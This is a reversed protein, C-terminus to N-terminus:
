SRRRHSSSAPDKRHGPTRHSPHRQAAERRASYVAQQRTSVHRNGRARGQSRGCGGRGQFFSIFSSHFVLHVILSLLCSFPFNFSSHPSSLPSRRSSPPSYLSSHTYLQESSRCVYLNYEPNSQNPVVKFSKDSDEAQRVYM